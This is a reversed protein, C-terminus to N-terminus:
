RWTKSVWVDERSWGSTQTDEKVDNWSPKRLIGLEEQRPRYKINSETMKTQSAWVM